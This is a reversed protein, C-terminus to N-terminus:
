LRRHRRPCFKNVGLRLEYSYGLSYRVMFGKENVKNFLEIYLRKNIVRFNNM